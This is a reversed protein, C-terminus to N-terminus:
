DEEWEWIGQRGVAPVQRIARVSGLISCWPGFVWRDRVLEEDGLLDSSDNYEHCDKLECTGIVQGAISRLYEDDPVEGLIEAVM